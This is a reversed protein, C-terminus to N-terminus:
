NKLLTTNIKKVLAHSSSSNVKRVFLKDSTIIQEWDDLTYWKQLTPCVLHFNVLRWLGRGKYTQIGDAREAFKSNGVITHFYHEDPSFTNKNMQYFWPNETHYNVIYECCEPTLACWTHGFYPTIDKRWNNPLKMTRLLKRVAKDIFALIKNSTTLLPELYHKKTVLKLYHEPSDRMNIYKIFQKKPNSTFTANITKAPKIPYDSGSLFIFHSYRASFPLAAKILSLLADVMSIGAWAINTRNEIFTVSSPCQSIFDALNAKSDVHVYIDADNSISNVLCGLHIPDSHALILYAIKKM